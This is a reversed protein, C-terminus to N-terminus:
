CWGEPHCLRVEVAGDFCVWCVYVVVVPFHIYRWCSPPLAQTQRGRPIDWPRNHAYRAPGRSMGLPLCVWARGVEQQLYKM